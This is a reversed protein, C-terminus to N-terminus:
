MNPNFRYVVHGNRASELQWEGSTTLRAHTIGVLANITFGVDNRAVVRGRAASIATRYSFSAM